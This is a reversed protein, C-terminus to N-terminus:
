IGVSPYFQWGLDGCIKKWIEEQVRLKEPSKLLDFYHVYDDMGLIQFIKHLVYAYSLFNIRNSPCHRVFAEQIQKFMSKIKEETNRSLVPPSKKTIKSVIFPTHEYYQNYKLKKLIDKVLQITIKNINTVKMKKLEAVINTYVEEPIETSEKAQFQNLWECLHNLRKYPYRSKETITDKHSPVESEIITHEVEGCKQCVFFGESQILTKEINCKPCIKIAHPKNKNVFTNDVIFMYDDFLSAKNSVIEEIVGGPAKGYEPGNESKESTGDSLKASNTPGDFFDLICRTNKIDNKRARRKTEKKVKRKQQSLLNLEELKSKGNPIKDSEDDSKDIDSLNGDNPEDLKEINTNIYSSDDYYELLIDNTQSYYELESIDNTIDNLEQTAVQIKSKIDSKKKVINLAKDDDIAGYDIKSINEYERELQSIWGTLEQIKRDKHEFESVKKKHMTDLTNVSTLHKIKDPKYRFTAMLLLNKKRNDLLM